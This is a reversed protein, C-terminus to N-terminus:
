CLQEYNGIHVVGSDAAALSEKLIPFYKSVYGVCVETIDWMIGLNSM